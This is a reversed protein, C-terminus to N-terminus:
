EKLDSAYFPSPTVPPDGPRLVFTEVELEDRYGGYKITVLDRKAGVHARIELQIKKKVTAFQTEEGRRCYVYILINRDNSDRLLVLTPYILGSDWSEADKLRFTQYPSYSEGIISYPPFGKCRLDRNTDSPFFEIHDITKSGDRSAFVTGETPDLYYQMMIDDSRQFYKKLPSLLTQLFIPKNPYLNYRLVRGAPVDWGARNCGGTSYYVEIIGEETQYRGLVGLDELTKFLEEVETRSTRLPVIKGRITFQSYTAVSPGLLFVLM